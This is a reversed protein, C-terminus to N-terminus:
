SQINSSDYLLQHGNANTSQKGFISLYSYEYHFSHVYLVKRQSLNMLLFIPNIVMLGSFLRFLVTHSYGLRTTFLTSGMINTSDLQVCGLTSLPKVFLRKFLVVLWEYFMCVKLESSSKLLYMSINGVTVIIQRTFYLWYLNLEKGILLSLSKCRFLSMRRTIAIPGPVSLQISIVDLAESCNM